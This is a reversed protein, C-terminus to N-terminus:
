IFIKNISKDHTKDDHCACKCNPIFKIITKVVLFDINCYKRKLWNYLFQISKTRMNVVTQSRNFRDKPYWAIKSQIPCPLLLLPVDEKKSDSM